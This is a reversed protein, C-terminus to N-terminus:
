KLHRLTLANLAILLASVSMLLAAMDPRIVVGWRAFVGAALPLAIINYLISLFVNRSIKSAAYQSLRVLSAIDRLDKKMFIIDAAEVDINTQAGIAIGIDAQKLAPADYAGDGVVAIVADRNGDSRGLIERQLVSVIRAKDEPLVQAHFREIGLTKAVWETVEQGDGTLMVPTIGLDKLETITEKAGARIADACGILGMVAGDKAVWAINRKKKNLKDLDDKFPETDIGKEQLLLDTGVIIHNGIVTGAVGKSPFFEIDEAEGFSISKQSAAKIIAMAVPHLSEMEVSATYRLVSAENNKGFAIVEIVKFEGETLIGTKDFIVYEIDKAKEVINTDRLLIGKQISLSSVVATVVPVAFELAYPSAVVLVAMGILFASLFNGGGVFAWYLFSFAAFILAFLTVYRALQEAAEQTDPKIKESQLIIDIIKALVTDKKEKEVSITISGDIARMGAIVKEGAKVAYPESEGMLESVDVKTQGSEIIGDLPIIDGSMIRVREGKKVQDLDVEVGGGGKVLYAKEPFLTTLRHVGFSANRILKMGIWYGFLLALVLTGMPFYFEIAIFQFAGGLSLFWGMLLAVSILTMTSYQHEAAERFAGKFFPLGGIFVILTVLGFLFYNQHIPFIDFPIKIWEQFAKETGILPIMLLVVFLFLRQFSLEKARYRNFVDGGGNNRVDGEKKKDTSM